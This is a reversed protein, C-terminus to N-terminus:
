QLYGSLESTAGTIAVWTDQLHRQCVRREHGSPDGSWLCSFIDGSRICHDCRDIRYQPESREPILESIAFPQDPIPRFPVGFRGSLVAQLPEAIYDHVQCPFEITKLASINGDGMALHSRVEIADRLGLWSPPYRPSRIKTLNPLLRPNGCLTRPFNNISFGSTETNPLGLTEVSELHPFWSEVPFEYLPLNTVVHPYLVLFKLRWLRLGPRTPDDNNRGTILPIDAFDKEEDEECHYLYLEELNPSCIISLVWSQTHLAKLDPAYIPSWTAWPARLASPRFASRLEVLRFSEHLVPIHVLTLPEDIFAPFDRASNGFRKGYESDAVLKRGIGNWERGTKGFAHENKIDHMLELYRPKPTRIDRLRCSQPDVLGYYLLEELHPLEIVTGVDECVIAPVNMELRRLNYLTEPSPWIWAAHLFPVHMLHLERLFPLGEVLQELLAGCLYESKMGDFLYQFDTFMLTVVLKSIREHNPLRTYALMDWPRHWDNKSRDLTVDLLLSDLKKFKLAALLLDWWGERNTEELTVHLSQLAQCQFNQLLSPSWELLLHLTELKPLELPALVTHYVGHLVLARLHVLSPLAAIVRLDLNDLASRRWRARTFPDVAEDTSYELFVEGPFKELALTSLSALGGEPGKLINIAAKAKRSLRLELTRIRGTHPLLENTVGDLAGRGRMTIHLPLTKSCHLYLRLSEIIEDDADTDININCWMAPTDLVIAAWASCTEVLMLSADPDAGGAWEFIEHLIEVPLLTIPHPNLIRDQERAEDFLRDFQDKLEDFSDPSGAIEFL